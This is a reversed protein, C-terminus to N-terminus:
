ASCRASCMPTSHRQMATLQSSPSRAPSAKATNVAADLHGFRAVTRDVLDRVDDERRVDARIFEAEAGLARLETALGQGAEEHRGSVVIRSGEAAFALAAARGIGTLAGTILVVPNNM